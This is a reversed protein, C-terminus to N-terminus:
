LSKRIPILVTNIGDRISNSESLTIIATVLVLNENSGPFVVLGSRAIRYFSVVRVGRALPGAFWQVLIVASAGFPNRWAVARQMRASRPARCPSILLDRFHGKSGFRGFLLM